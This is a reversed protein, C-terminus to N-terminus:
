HVGALAPIRAFLERLSAAAAIISRESAVFAAAADRLRARKGADVLLERVLSALASEDGPPALLGTHDHEVIDPVGRTACSVVPLGAALAELMAMGYAENVAPWVCLDAAANVRAIEALGLAGLVV